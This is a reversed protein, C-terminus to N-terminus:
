AAGTVKTCYFEFHSGSYNKIYTIEYYNTGSVFRDGISVAMVSGSVYAYGFCIHDFKETLGLESMQRALKGSLPQIDVYATTGASWTWVAEGRDNYSSVTKSQHTILTQWDANILAVDGSYNNTM